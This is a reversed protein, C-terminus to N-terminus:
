EVIRETNKGDSFQNIKRYKKVYEDELQYNNEICNQVIEILAEKSYAM